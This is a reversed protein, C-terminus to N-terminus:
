FHISSKKLSYYLEPDELLHQSIGRFVIYAGLFIKELGQNTNRDSELTWVVQQQLTPRKLTDYKHTKWRILHQSHRRKQGTHTHLSKNLDGTGDLQLMPPFRGVPRLQTSCHGGTAHHGVEFLGGVADVAQPEAAGGHVQQVGRHSVWTCSRVCM